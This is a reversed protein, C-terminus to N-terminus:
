PHPPPARRPLCTLAGPFGLCADPARARCLPVGRHKAFFRLHGRVQERYMPPWDLRTSAGGVHVFQADPTFEVGWGAEHMRYCLDVEESFMFFDTDFEGVEDMAARRLLLVAGTLFEAERATKHDFGAGYFSRPTAFAPRAM